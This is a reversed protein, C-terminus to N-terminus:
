KNNEREEPKTLQSLISEWMQHEASVNRLIKIKGMILEALQNSTIEKPSENILKELDIEAELKKTIYKTSVLDLVRKDM